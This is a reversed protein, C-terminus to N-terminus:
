HNETVQSAAAYHLYDLIVQGELTVVESQSQFM